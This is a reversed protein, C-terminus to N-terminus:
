PSDGHRALCVNKLAHAHEYAQFCTYTSVGQLPLVAPEQLGQACLLALKPTIPFYANRGPISAHLLDDPGPGHVPAKSETACFHLLDHGWTTPNGARPCGGVSTHIDCTSRQPLFCAQDILAQGYPVPKTSLFSALFTQLEPVDKLM